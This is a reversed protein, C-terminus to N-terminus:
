KKDKYISERSKLELEIPTGFFGFAERIRNEIYRKYSFHFHDARNVSLVFKPPNIDVQSGYYM